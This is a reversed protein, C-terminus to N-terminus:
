APLVLQELELGLLAAPFTALEFGLPIGEDELAFPEPLLELPCLEFDGPLRAPIALPNDLFNLLPCLLL